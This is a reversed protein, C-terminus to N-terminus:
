KYMGKPREEEVHCGCTYTFLFSNTWDLKMKFVIFEIVYKAKIHLFLNVLNWNPKLMYFIWM